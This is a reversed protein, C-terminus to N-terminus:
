NTLWRKRTLTMRLMQSRLWAIAWRAFNICPPFQMRKQIGIHKHLETFIMWHQAYYLMRCIDYGWDALTTCLIFHTTHEIFETDRELYYVEMRAYFDDLFDHGVRLGSNQLSHLMTQRADTFVKPWDGDFYLLTDGLDLLVADFRRRDAM